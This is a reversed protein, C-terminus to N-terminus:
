PIRGRSKASMSDITASVRRLTAEPLEQRTFCRAMAWNMQQWVQVMEPGNPMSVADRAQAYFAQAPKPISSDSYISIAAPMRGLEDLARRQIEKSTLFDLFKRAEEPQQSSQTIAFGHIGVFPKPKQGKPLLPLLAVSAEIGSAKIREWDWPGTIIMAVQGSCFLNVMASHNAKPPVIGDRELNMSFNISEIAEQSSLTCRGKEDFLKAGFGFFFPAHYYFNKNDFLLPIVEKTTALRRGLAILEVFNKPPKQVFARNYLLAVVGFSMPLAYLSGEYTLGQVTQELQEERPKDLPRLIKKTALEGIWDHVLFVIDPKTASLPRGLLKPKLDSFSTSQFEVSVNPHSKGYEGAACKFFELEGDTADLWLTLSIPEQVKKESCGLGSLFGCLVM